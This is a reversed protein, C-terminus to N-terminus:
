CNPASRMAVRLQSFENGAHSAKKGASYRFLRCGGFRSTRQYPLKQPCNMLARPVKLELYPCIM